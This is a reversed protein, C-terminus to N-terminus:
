WTPSARTKWDQFVSAGNNTARAMRAGSTRLYGARLCAADVLGAARNDRNARPPPAICSQPSPSRKPPIRRLRTARAARSRDARSTSRRAGEGHLWPPTSSRTPPTLDTPSAGETIRTRRRAERQEGTASSDNVHVYRLRLAKERCYGPGGEGCSVQTTWPTGCCQVCDVAPATSRRAFFRLLRTRKWVRSRDALIM